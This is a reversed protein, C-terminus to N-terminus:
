VGGPVAFVCCVFSVEWCSLPAWARRSAGTMALLSLFPPTPLALWVGLRDLAGCRQRRYHRLNLPPALLLAACYKQADV